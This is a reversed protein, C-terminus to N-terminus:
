CRRCPSSSPSGKKQSLSPIEFRCASSLRRKRGGSHLGSPSARNGSRSARTSVSNHDRQKCVFIFDAFRDPSGGSEFISNGDTTTSPERAQADRENLNEARERLRLRSGRKANFFFFFLGLVGAVDDGEHELGLIGVADRVELELEHVDVRLLEADRVRLVPRRYSSTSKETKKEPETKKKKALLPPFFTGFSVRM